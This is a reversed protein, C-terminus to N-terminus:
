PVCTEKRYRSAHMLALAAADTADLDDIKSGLIANVFRAVDEKEARGNGAIAKKASTAHYEFYDAKRRAIAAMIVGRSEATALTSQMGKSIFGAEVVCDLDGRSAHEAFLREVAEQLWGLRFHLRGKLVFTGAARLRLPRTELVCYGVRKTGPDLAIVLRGPPPSAAAASDVPVAPM